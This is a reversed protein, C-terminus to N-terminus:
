PPTSAAALDAVFRDLVEDVVHDMVVVKWWAPEGEHTDPVLLYREAVARPVHRARIAVVNMHPDRFFAVARRALADCLRDTRRVLEGVFRAGGESGYAHLIMWIAVANAGSRSGCLTVDGGHVYEAEGTAVHGILGKRALFIGTGYPAQLMKHADATISAVRPHRFSLPNEPNTFPYIFAGYAADVHFRVDAGLEDFVRAAADVDDVSGFMTTGMNLVAVFFRVGRARAERVTRELEAPIMQRTDDDVPVSAHELGLLDAGKAISYHTDASRVVCLEGPRAGRTDRLHNRQVWLAQINAETGGPAVYGDYSGPAAGLIEEACIRVVDRELRHTGAFATESAGLTHCGIHNPNERLCSLYPMDRLFPADPFIERDLYSGPYGLVEARSYSLNDRLAEFVAARIAEPSLKKWEL